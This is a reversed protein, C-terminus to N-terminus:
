ALSVPGIISSLVATVALILVAILMENRISKELKHSIAEEKVEEVLHYKHYIAILLITVVIILKLLMAQGYITTFLELPNALFLFLLGIGCVILLSVMFM